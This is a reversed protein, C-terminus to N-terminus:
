NIGHKNEILNILHKLDPLTLNLVNIHSEFNLQIFPEDDVMRKKYSETIDTDYFEYEAQKTM